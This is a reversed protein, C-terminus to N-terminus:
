SFRTSQLLLSPVAYNKGEFGSFIISFIFFEKHIQTRSQLNIINWTSTMKHTTKAPQITRFCPKLKLNKYSSNSNSSKTKRKHDKSDRQCSLSRTLSSTFSLNSKLSIDHKFTCRVTLLQDMWVSSYSSLMVNFSNSLCSYLHM